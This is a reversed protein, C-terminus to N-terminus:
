ISTVLYVKSCIINAEKDSRAGPLKRISSAKSVRSVGNFDRSSLAPETYVADGGWKVKAIENSERTMIVGSVDLLNQGTKVMDYLYCCGVFPIRLPACVEFASVCFQASFTATACRTRPALHKMLDACSVLALATCQIIAYRQSGRQLSQVASILSMPDTHIKKVGTRRALKECKERDPEVLVYSGHEYAKLADLSQGDGAGFDIVINGDRATGWAMGLIKSRLEQCWGVAVRRQVDDPSQVERLACSIIDRCVSTSNAVTKDTRRFIEHAVVRKKNKNFSFRVELIDGDAFNAHANCELIPDGDSSVLRGHRLELEMSRVDKIKLAETGKIGIAVVGDCPRGETRAYEKAESMSTFYRRMSVPIDPVSVIIERWCDAVWKMDRSVPAVTGHIDILVDILVSAGIATFEVDIVLPSGCRGTSSNCAWWGLIERKGLRSVYYCIRGYMLIWMRQGDVKSTYIYDPTVPIPSDWARPSLNSLQGIMSPELLDFLTKPGYGMSHLRKAASWYDDDMDELECCLHINGDRLSRVYYSRRGGIDQTEMYSASMHSAVHVKSADVVYEDLAEVQGWGGSSRVDCRTVCIPRNNGHPGREILEAPRPLTYSFGSSGRAGTITMRRCEYPLFKDIRVSSAPIQVKLVYRTGVYRAPVPGSESSGSRSRSSGWVTSPVSPSSMFDLRSSDLPCSFCKFITRQAEDASRAQYQIERMCEGCNGCIRQLDM